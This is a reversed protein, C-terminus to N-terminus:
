LFICFVAQFYLLNYFLPWDASPCRSSLCAVAAATVFAEAM